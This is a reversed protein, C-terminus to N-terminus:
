ELAKRACVVDVFGHLDWLQRVQFSGSPWRWGRQIHRSLCRSFRTDNIRNAHKLSQGFHTQCNVRWNRQGLFPIKYLADCNIGVVCIPSHMSNRRTYLMFFWAFKTCTPAQKPELSLWCHMASKSARCFESMKGTEKTLHWYIHSLECEQIRTQHKCWPHFM